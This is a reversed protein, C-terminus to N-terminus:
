GGAEGSAWDYAQLMFGAASQKRRAVQAFDGLARALIAVMRSYRASSGGCPDPCSTLLQHLTERCRADPIGDVTEVEMIAAHAWTALGDADARWSDLHMLPALLEAVSPLLPAPVTDALGIICGHVIARGTAGGLAAQLRTRIAHVAENTRASGASPAGAAMMRAAAGVSCLLSMSADCAEPQRCSGLMSAALGLLSPLASSAAIAPVLLKAQRDAHGLLATLLAPEEIPMHLHAVTALASAALQDLLSAFSTEVEPSAGIAFADVLSDAVSLLCASPRAAFAATLAAVTPSLMPAFHSEAARVAECGLRALAPHLAADVASPALLSCWTPWLLTLLSVLSSIPLPKLPALAATIEDIRAALEHAAANSESASNQLHGALTAHAHHLADLLPTFYREVVAPAEVVVSSVAALLQCRREGPSHAGGHVNILRPLTSAHVDLFISLLENDLAIEHAARRCLQNLCRLGADATVAAPHALAPLVSRVAVALGRAASDGALWPTLHEIMECRVRLLIAESAGSSAGAQASTTLAAHLLPPLLAALEAAGAPPPMGPPALIRSLLVELSASAAFLAAEKAQWSLPVGDAATANGDGLRQICARAFCAPEARTLEAIASQLFHERFDCYEGLEVADWDALRAEPPFTGRSTCAQAAATILSARMSAEWHAAARMVAPWFETALTGECVARKCHTSCPVIRQLLVLMSQSLPQGGTVPANPVLYFSARRLLTGGLGVAALMVGAEEDNEDEEDDDVDDEGSPLTHTMDSTIALPELARSTAVVLQSLAEPPVARPCSGVGAAENSPEHELLMRCLEFVLRAERYFNTPDAAVPTASLDAHQMLEVLCPTAALRGLTIGDRAPLEAWKCAASLVALRYDDDREAPAAGPPLAPPFPAQAVYAHQLWALLLQQMADTETDSLFAGAEPILALVGLISGVPLSAFAPDALLSGMGGAGLLMSCARCLQAHLGSATSDGLSGLQQLLITRLAAGAQAPLGGCNDGRLKTCLVTAGFMRSDGTGAQILRVAGDWAAYSSQFERLFADAGQRQQADSTTYLIRLAEEVQEM